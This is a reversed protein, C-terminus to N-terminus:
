VEISEWFSICNEQLRRAKPGLKHCRFVYEAPRVAELPNGLPAKLLWTEIIEVQYIVRNLAEGGFPIKTKFFIFSNRRTKNIAAIFFSLKM